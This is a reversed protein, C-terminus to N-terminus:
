LRFVSLFHETKKIWLEVNNKTADAQIWEDSGYRAFMAFGSLDRLDLQEEDNLRIELLHCLQALNHIKPPQEDNHVSVFKGKLQKEVALHCTFLAFEFDGSELLNKAATFAREAGKQWHEAAESATM